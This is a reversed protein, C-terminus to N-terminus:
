KDDSDKKSKKTEILEKAEAKETAADIESTKDVLGLNIWKLAIPLTVSTKGGSQFKGFAKKFTVEFRKALPMDYSKKETKSM